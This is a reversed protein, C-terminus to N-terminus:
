LWYIEQSKVHQIIKFTIFSINVNQIIYQILRLGHLPFWSQFLLAHQRDQVALIMGASANTVKPALADDFMTNVM